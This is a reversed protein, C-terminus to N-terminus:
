YIVYHYLIVDGPLLYAIAARYAVFARIIEGLSRPQRRRRRRRRRDDRSRQYIIISDRTIIIIIIPAEVAITMARVDRRTLGPPSRQRSRVPRRRIEGVVDVVPPGEGALNIVRRTPRRAISSVAPRSPPAYSKTRTDDDRQNQNKNKKKQDPFRTTM